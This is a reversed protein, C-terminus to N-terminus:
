KKARKGKRKNTEEQKNRRESSAIVHCQSGCKSGDEFCSCRKEDCVVSTCQCSVAIGDIGDIGPVFAAARQGQKSLATAVRHKPTSAIM